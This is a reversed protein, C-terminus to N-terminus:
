DEGWDHLSAQNPNSQSQYQKSATIRIIDDVSDVVTAMDDNIIQEIGETPSHGYSPSLVLVQTGISKADRYQSM